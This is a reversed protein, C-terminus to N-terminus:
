EDMDEEDLNDLDAERETLGGLWSHLEGTPDLEHKELFGFAGSYFGKPPEWKTEVGHLLYYLTWLGVLIKKSPNACSFWLSFYKPTERVHLLELFNLPHISIHDHIPISAAYSLLYYELFHTYCKVRDFSPHTWKEMIATIRFSTKGRDSWLSHDSLNCHHQSLIGRDISYPPITHESQPYQKKLGHDLPPPFTISSLQTEESHSDDSFYPVMFHALVHEKYIQSTMQIMQERFSNLLPPADDQDLQRLLWDLVIHKPGNLKKWNDGACLNELLAQMNENEEPDERFKIDSIDRCQLFEQIFFLLLPPDQFPPINVGLLLREQPNNLFALALQSAQIFKQRYEIHFIGGHSATELFESLGPTPYYGPDLSKHINEQATDDFADSM